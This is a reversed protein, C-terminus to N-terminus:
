YQSGTVEVQRGLASTPADQSLAGHTSPAEQSPPVHAASGLSPWLQAPPRQAPSRRQLPEFTHTGGVAITTQGMSGGSYFGGM